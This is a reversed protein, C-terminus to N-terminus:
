DEQYEFQDEREALCSPKPRETSRNALVEGLVQAVRRNSEADKVAIRLAHRGLRTGMVSADRLFVGHQRCRQVVSAADPGDPPLHCLIFNAVGAVLELQLQELSAALQARLARTEQYRRAYYQPDQLARVAAVQAPLSVAWPPTISRLEELLQPAACLYAVRAGSLGYGKSLSKCVVVNEARAAFREMSEDAGAYDIYTEDIWIRTSLPARALVAELDRRPVHCGTPSNPNVLVILDYGRAVASEWRALNPRYGDERALTFRDVHCRVVRELVHAYEGYTPDLILARSDRRLWQRFALFILASSGAGPLVCDPEVRRARAIARILGECGTPPSTRLLWPLHEQLAAIAHPSPPFWADLVDANIIRRSRELHDFEEGIAAFFAGGHFCPAPQQFPVGLEWDTKRELRDFLEAMQDARARLAAIRAQLVEYTVAGARITPGALELGLRLYLGLVERRGMAMIRTGGRAEVWRLAAYMLLTAIERGRHSKTVTLLRVEYLQDDFSFPLQDRRLYKDISYAPQGPPTISIFGVIQGAVTAVVYANFDDLSDRLRGAPNAAHQLIERAYVEHRFRYITERDEGTAIAIRVPGPHDFSSHQRRAASPDRPTLQSNANM